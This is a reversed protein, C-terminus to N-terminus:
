SRRVSLPSAAIVEVLVSIPEAAPQSLVIEARLGYVKCDTMRVRVQEADLVMTEVEPISQMAPEIMVHLAYRQQGPEFKYRFYGALTDYGDQETRNIQQIFGPDQLASVGELDDAGLTLGNNASQVNM